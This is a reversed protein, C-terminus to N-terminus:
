VYVNTYVYIDYFWLVMIYLCFIHLTFLYICLYICLYIWALANHSWNEFIGSLENEVSWSSSPM